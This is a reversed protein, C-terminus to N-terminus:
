KSYLLSASTKLFNGYKQPDYGLPIVSSFVFRLGNFVKKKIQPMIVRVDAPHSPDDLNRREYFQQHISVLLNTMNTLEIDNDVLVPRRPRTATAPKAFDVKPNITDILDITLSTSASADQLSQLLDVSLVDNEGLHDGMILPPQVDCQSDKNASLLQDLELNDELIKELETEMAGIMEDQEAEKEQRAALPRSKQQEDLVHQHVVTIQAMVKADGDEGGTKEAELEAEVIIKRDKDSLSTPLPLKDSTESQNPIIALPSITHTKKKSATAHIEKM